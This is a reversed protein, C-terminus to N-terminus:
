CASSTSASSSHARAAAARAAHPRRPRARRRAPSASWRGRAARPSWPPSSSRIPRPREAGDAQKALDCPVSRSRSLVEGTLLAQNVLLDRAEILRCDAPVLDGADLMVVDGPVLTEVPVEIVTGDRMVDAKVAVSRALAEMTHEAQREQIFDLVVSLLVIAAVIIFSALTARWLRFAARSSSFSSSRIPSAGFSSVGHRRGASRSPATRATDALRGRGRGDLPRDALGAATGDVEAAARELLEPQYGQFDERGPRTFPWAM